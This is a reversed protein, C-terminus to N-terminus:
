RRRAVILGALFAIALLRLPAARTLRSLHDRLGDPRRGAAIAGAISESTTQVAATTDRVAEATEDLVTQLDGRDMKMQASRRRGDGASQAAQSLAGAAKGTGSVSHDARGM